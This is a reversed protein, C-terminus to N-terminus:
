KKNSPIPVPFDVDCMTEFVTPGVTNTGCTAYESDQCVGCSGSGGIFKVESFNSISRKNLKFSKLNRKKMIM